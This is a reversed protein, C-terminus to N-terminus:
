PNNYNDIHQETDCKYSYLTFLLDRYNHSANPQIWLMAIKNLLFPTRKKEIQAESNQLYQALNQSSGMERLEGYVHYKCM